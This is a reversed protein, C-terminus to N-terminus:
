HFCAYPKKASLIIWHSWTVLEFDVQESEFVSMIFFHKSKYVHDYYEAAQIQVVGPGLRYACTVVVHGCRDRGCYKGIRGLVLQKRVNLWVGVAAVCQKLVLGLVRKVDVAGRPLPTNQACSRVGIEQFIFSDGTAKQSNRSTVIHVGHNKRYKQLNRRLSYNWFVVNKVNKNFIRNVFIHWLKNTM